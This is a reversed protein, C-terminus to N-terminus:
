RWKQNPKLGYTHAAHYPNTIYVVKSDGHIGAYTNKLVTNLHQNVNNMASTKAKRRGGQSTRKHVPQHAKTTLSQKVKAM